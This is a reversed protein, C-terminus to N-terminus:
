QEVKQRAAELAIDRIVSALSEGNQQFSATGRRRLQILEDGTPRYGFLFQMAHDVACNRNTSDSLANAITNAESTSTIKKDRLTDTIRDLSLHCSSCFYSGDRAQQPHPLPLTFPQPALHPIKCTMLLASNWSWINTALKTGRLPKTLTDNDLNQLIVLEEAPTESLSRPGVRGRTPTLSPLLLSKATQKADKIKLTSSLWTAPGDPNADSWKQLLDISSRSIATRRLATLQSWKEDTAIALAIGRGHTLSLDALLRTIARGGASENDILLGQMTSQLRADFPLCKELNSGCISEQRVDPCVRMSASSDWHPLVDVTDDCGCRRPRENEMVTWVGSCVTESPRGEQPAVFYLPQITTSPSLKFYRGWTSNNHKEWLWAPTQNLQSSWYLSMREFFEKSRVLHNALDFAGHNGRLRVFEREFETPLREVLSLTLRDLAAGSVPRNSQGKRHPLNQVAFASSLKFFVGVLTLVIIANTKSKM